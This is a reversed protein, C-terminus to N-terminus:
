ILIEAQFWGDEYQYELSGQYKKVAEKVNQSGWGHNKKDTKITNLKNDKIEVKHAVTNKVLIYIQENQSLMHIKITKAKDNEIEECAEIANKRRGCATTNSCGFRCKRYM